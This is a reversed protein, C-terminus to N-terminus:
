QARPHHALILAHTPCYLEYFLATYQNFVSRTVSVPALKWSRLPVHLLLLQILVWPFFVLLHIYSICIM